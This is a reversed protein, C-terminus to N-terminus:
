KVRQANNKVMDCKFKLCNYLILFQWNSNFHFSLLNELLIFKENLYIIEKMAKMQTSFHSGNIM